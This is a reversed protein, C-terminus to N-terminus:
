LKLGQKIQQILDDFIVPKEICAYAGNNLYDDGQNVEILASVMIIISDPLKTKLCSL